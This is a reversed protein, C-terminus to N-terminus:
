KAFPVYVSQNVKIPQLLIYGGKDLINEQPYDLIELDHAELQWHSTIWNENLSKFIPQHSPEYPIIQIDKNERIKKAEKVRQLLSKESLLDEWEGIAKWLDNRTEKSIDDIATTVDILSEALIESM